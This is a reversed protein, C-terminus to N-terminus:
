NVDLFADAMTVADQYADKVTKVLLCLGKACLSIKDWDGRIFDNIVSFLRSINENNGMLAQKIRPALSLDNLIKDMPMDLMAELHCFLGLTFLEEDSFEMSLKKGLIECMRGTIISTTIMEEPKEAALGASAVLLIFKKIEHEGMVTVADKVSNISIKRRYYSSNTLKVLRFSMSVDERILKVLKLFDVDKRLVQTILRILNIKVVPISKNMLVKPKEFFYGQFYHCGLDLAKKFEDHTEVKEALFKIKPLNSLLLIMRDIENLSSQRLDFKIIDAQHVLPLIEKSYIFDDLAIRLGNTKFRTIADIVKPDPRVDELIEIV